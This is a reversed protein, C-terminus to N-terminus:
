EPVRTSLVARVREILESSLHLELSVRAAYSGGEDTDDGDDEDMEAEDDDRRSDWSARHDEAAAADAFLEVPLAPYSDGDWLGRLVEDNLLWGVFLTAFDDLLKISVASRRDIGGHDYWGFEAVVGPTALGIITRGILPNWEGEEVQREAWRAEVHPETEDSMPLMVSGDTLIPYAMWPDDNVKAYYDNTNGAAPVPRLAFPLQAALDPACHIRTEEGARIESLEPTSSIVALVDTGECPIECGDTHRLLLVGDMCLLDVRDLLPAADGAGDHRAIAYIVGVGM